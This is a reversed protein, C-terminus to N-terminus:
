KTVKTRLLVTNALKLDPGWVIQASPSWNVTLYGDKVGVAEPSYTSAARWTSDNFSGTSWGTPTLVSKSQCDVTPNTSTVCSPNLPATNVVLSKWKSSTASVLKGSKTEKVQAIIGGDGIQQRSTGVYELGSSNQTYDKAIFGLTLPYTATFHITESNFSRETTLPVSDEGVLKGNAYLAFWNDAWVEATFEVPNAKTPQAEAPSVLAGFIMLGPGILLSGVFLRKSKM